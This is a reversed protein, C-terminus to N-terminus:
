PVGCIVPDVRYSGPDGEWRIRRRGATAALSELRVFGGTEDSVVVDGDDPIDLVIAGGASVIEAHTLARDRWQVNVLHGGRARLGSVQGAPWTSPVAPLVAIAGDHSQVLLEAIGAAGGLNGDIQFVAGEPNSFPHLDLLMASSLDRLLAVISEAALGSDGLRAALGITWARSWGTHGGGQSLRSHIARAAAALEEPARSATIRSGPYVGYLHSMHRHGPELPARDDAWELLAGDPGIAPRRVLTLAHRVRDLLAPDGAGTREALELLRHFSELVLEQDMTAGASVAAFGDGDRFRHEPSTSPSVVLHGDQDPQLMDLLFAAVAEHVPLARDRAFADDWAFDLHDGLHAAMWPLGGTWNSWQPDGNVAATFRWLDTNHHTVAGAAGYTAQAQARGAEALDAVLDFLPEHLDALNTTEALWYNMEVNINTTYNSSWAPQVETSWIGQLNTPQTGRRSSAILLYRGLDFYLEARAPDDPDSTTGTASASLDLDVRGFLAAHDEVHRQVLEDVPRELAALVQARAQDVLADLDASPRRDWGRYGTQAAAILLTRDDALRRHAVVLAWGMGADVLGDPDPEDEAVVVSPHIANAPPYPPLVRAPARGATEIWDVGDDRRQHTRFAHPSSLQPLAAAGTASQDAICVLVQDPESVFARLRSQRGDDAILTTATASALDLERRVQAQPSVEDWVWSLRGLPQYSQTWGDSQLRTAAKDADHFRRAAVAERVLRLADPDAARPSAVPGGSWLTDVNLDLHAVGPPGTLAAGLRGNGLLLADLFKTGSTMSSLVHRTM